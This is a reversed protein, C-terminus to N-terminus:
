FKRFINLPRNVNNIRQRNGANRWHKHIGFSLHRPHSEDYEFEGRADPTTKKHESQEMTEDRRRKFPKEGVCADWVFDRFEDQHGLWGSSTPSLLNIYRGYQQLTEEYNFPEQFVPKVIGKQEFGWKMDNWDNKIYEKYWEYAPTRQKKLLMGKGSFHTQQFLFCQDAGCM